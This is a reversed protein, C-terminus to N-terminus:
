VLDDVDRDSIVRLGSPGESAGLVAPRPLVDVVDNPAELAGGAAEPQDDRWGGSFRKGPELWSLTIEVRKEGQGEAEMKMQAPLIKGLLGMFAVPNAHAQRELYKAGGANNLATLVMRRIDTQVKNGSGKARGKIGTGRMVNSLESM